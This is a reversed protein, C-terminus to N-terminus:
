RIEEIKEYKQVYLVTMPTEPSEGGNGPSEMRWSPIKGRIEPDKEMKETRSIGKKWEQISSFAQIITDFISTFLINFL